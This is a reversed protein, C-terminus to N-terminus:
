AIELAQQLIVVADSDNRFGYESAFDMSSSGYANSLDLGATRIFDGLYEPDVSAVVLESGDYLCVNGDIASIYDITRM